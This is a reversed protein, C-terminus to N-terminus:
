PQRRLQALAPHPRDGPQRLASGRGPRPPIGSEASLVLAGPHRCRRDAGAGARLPAGGVPAAHYRSGPASLRACLAAVATETALAVAGALLHL